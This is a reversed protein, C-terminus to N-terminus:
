PVSSDAAPPRMTATGWGWLEGIGPCTARLRAMAAENGGYAPFVDVLAIDARLRPLLEFADGIRVEIPRGAHPVIRPMLWEVLEGDIECLTLREVEPRRAVELLQHGLGLGCVVTHGRALRTGERLTLLEAPTLSMWPHAQYRRGAGAPARQYLAPLGVHDDFIADGTRDGFWTLLRRGRRHVRFCYRFRGTPSDRRESEALLDVDAESPDIEPFLELVVFTRAVINLEPEWPDDVSWPRCAALRRALTARIQAGEAASLTKPPSVARHHWPGGAGPGRVPRARGRGAM